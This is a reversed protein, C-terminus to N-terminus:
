DNKVEKEEKKRGFIRGLFSNNQVQEATKRTFRKLYSTLNNGTFRNCAVNAKAGAFCCIAIMDGFWGGCPEILFHLTKYKVAMNYIKAASVKAGAVEFPKDHNIKFEPMDWLDGCIDFLEFFHQEFSEPTLVGNCVGAAADKKATEEAAQEVQAQEVQAAFDAAQEATFTEGDDIIKVENDM